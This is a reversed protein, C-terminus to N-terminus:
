ALKDAPDFHLVLSQRAALKEDFGTGSPVASAGIALVALRLADLPSDELGIAGRALARRWNPGRGFAEIWALGVDAGRGQQVLGEILTASQSLDKGSKARNQRRVTVILKHVAYRAPDPVIVGIGADHLLVSRVPERILFDLFPLPQAGVGGLAPMKAVHNQYEIKGRSTTLFEVKFGAANRFGSTVNPTNWHETTAFTPDVSKLVTDLPDVRDDLAVSVGYDQAIDLDGTRYQADPFKVGLVGAYSQYAVSGVLVARLRFLGAEALAQVVQGETPTPAPLGARRLKAALDRRVLYDSKISGFRAIRQEIEADGVPGVYKLTSAGPSGDLTRAYGRYYWYQRGSRKQKLFSGNAPFSADFAADHSKDVLDAFAIQDLQSLQKLM